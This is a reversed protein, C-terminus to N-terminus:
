QNFVLSIRYRLKGISESKVREPYNAKAIKKNKQGMSM